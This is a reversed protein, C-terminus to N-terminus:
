KVLKDMDPPLPISLSIKKSTIPHTFEVYYSHLACRKIFKNDGGYMIDGLLPHGLHSMHVRIQHTRGTKLSLRVLSYDKSTNLVSVYTIADKGTPSVRYKGNIHRDKGIKLNIINTKNYNGKVLALYDRKFEHSELENSLKSMSLPDKAFILIGTTDKDLRHIYRVPINLGKEQYYNAVINAVTDINNGDDHIIFGAPKNIILLYEDEYAVDIKYQYPKIDLAEDNEITLKDFPKLITDHPKLEDNIYTKIKKIKEKGLHFSSLYESITKNQYKKNIMYNFLAM